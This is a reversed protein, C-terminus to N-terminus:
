QPTFKATFNGPCLADEGQVPELSRTTSRSGFPTPCADDEDKVTFSQLLNYFMPLDNYIPDYIITFGNYFRFRPKASSVDSERWVTGAGLGSPLRPPLADNPHAREKGSTGNGM